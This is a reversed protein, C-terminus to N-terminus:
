GCEGTDTASSTSGLNGEQVEHTHEVEPAGVKSLTRSDFSPGKAKKVVVLQDTLNAYALYNSNDRM